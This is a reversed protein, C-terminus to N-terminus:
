QLLHVAAPFVAASEAFVCVRRRQHGAREDRSADGRTVLVDHVGQCVELRALLCVAPKWVGRGAVGVGVRGREDDLRDDGRSLANLVAAGPLLARALRRQGSHHRELVLRAARQLEKTGITRERGVLADWPQHQVGERLLM